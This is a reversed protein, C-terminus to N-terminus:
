VYPAGYQGKANTLVRKIYVLCEPCSTFYYSAEEPRLQLQVQCRLMIAMDFSARLPRAHAHDVRYIVASVKDRGLRGDLRVSM